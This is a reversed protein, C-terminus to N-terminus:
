LGAHSSFDEADADGLWASLVVKKQGHILTDRIREM